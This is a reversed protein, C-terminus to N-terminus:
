CFRAHTKKVPRQDLLIALQEADYSGYISEAEDLATVISDLPYAQLFSYAKGGASGSIMIKGNSGVSQMVTDRITKLTASGGGDRAHRLLTKCLPSPAPM